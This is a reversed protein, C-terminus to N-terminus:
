APPVLDLETRVLDGAADVRLTALRDPQGPVECHFSDIGSFFAARQAGDFAPVYDLLHRPRYFKFFYETGGEDQVRLFLKLRLKLKAPPLASRIAIAWDRGWGEEVFWSWTGGHRQPRVLWPGVDGLDNRARGNFLCLAEEGFGELCVPITPDRSADFLLFTRTEPPAVIVDKAEVDASGPRASPHPRASPGVDDFSGFLAEDLSAARASERPGPLLADLPDGVGYPGTAGHPDTAHRSSPSHATM